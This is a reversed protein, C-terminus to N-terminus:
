SKEKPKDTFDKGRWRKKEYIGPFDRSILVKQFDWVAM